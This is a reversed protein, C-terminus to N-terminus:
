HTANFLLNRLTRVALRAEEKDKEDRLNGSLDNLIDRFFQEYKEPDPKIVELYAERIIRKLQSRTLKM